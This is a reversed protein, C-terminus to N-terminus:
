GRPSMGAPAVRRKPHFDAISIIVNVTASAFSYIRPLSFFNGFFNALIHVGSVRLRGNSVVGDVM